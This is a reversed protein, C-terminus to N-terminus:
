SCGKEFQFWKQFRFTFAGRFERCGIRWGQVVALFKWSIRWGDFGLICNHVGRRAIVRWIGKMLWTTPAGRSNHMRKKRLTQLTLFDSVKPCMKGSSSIGLGIELQTHGHLSHTRSVLKRLFEWTVPIRSPLYSFFCVFFRASLHFRFPLPPLINKSICILIIGNNDRMTLLSSHRARSPPVNVHIVVKQKLMEQLDYLPLTVHPLIDVLYTNHNLISVKDILGIWLPHLLQSM